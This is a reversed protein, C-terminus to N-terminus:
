FLCLAKFGIPFSEVSVIDFANVIDHWALLPGNFNILKLILKSNKEKARMLKFLFHKWIAYSWSDGLVKDKDWFDIQHM